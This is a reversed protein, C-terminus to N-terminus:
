RPSPHEAHSPLQKLWDLIRGLETKSLQRQHRRFIPSYIPSRHQNPFLLVTQSLPVDAGVPQFSKELRLMNESGDEPCLGQLIKAVRPYACYIQEPRLEALLQLFITEQAQALEPFIKTLCGLEKSDATLWLYIDLHAYSLNHDHLARAVDNIRGFWRDYWHRAERHMKAMAAIIENAAEENGTKALPSSAWDFDNPFTLEPHAALFARAGRNKELGAPEPFSPNLGIVALRTQNEVREVIFKPVRDLVARTSYRQAAQQWMKLIHQNMNNM